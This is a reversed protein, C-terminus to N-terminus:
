LSGVYSLPFSDAQWYLLCPNFGQTLFGPPSCPLGNWYEQQSLGVSLPAHRAATWPTEFLQVRSLACVCVCRVDEKDICLSNYIISCHVYPHM